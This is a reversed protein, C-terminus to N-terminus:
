GDCSVDEIRMDSTLISSTEQSPVPIGRKMKWWFNSDILVFTVNWSSSTSLEKATISPCRQAFCSDTAFGMRSPVDYSPCRTWAVYLRSTVVRLEENVIRRYLSFGNVGTSSMLNPVAFASM